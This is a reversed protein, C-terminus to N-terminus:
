VIKAVAAEEIAAAYEHQALFKTRKLAVKYLEKLDEETDMMAVQEKLKKNIKLLRTLRADKLEPVDTYIEEFISSVLRLLYEDEKEWNMEYGNGFAKLVRTRQEFLFKAFKAVTNKELESAKTKLEDVSKPVEEGVNAVPSEVEQAVNTPDPDEKLINEMTTYNLPVFGVDAGEWDPEYGLNLRDNIDTFPIGLGFYERAVKARKELDARLEEISDRDFVGKLEPAYVSFLSHNLQEQILTMYPLLTEIWFSRKQAMATARNLGETFGAVSKPVGFVALIEDRSFTRSEIYKMEDQTPALTEIKMGAQAFAVRRANASGKHRNEFLTKLRLFEDNPLPEEGPIHVVLSPTADNEYFSKNYRSAEYDTDLAIRAAELPALGRYPDYPNYLKFHVVDSLELPLTDNYVWGTLTGKDDVVHKMKKPNLVYIEAPIAGPRGTTMGISENLLWFSEGYLGMNIVTSEFLQFRSTLPNPRDFLKDM